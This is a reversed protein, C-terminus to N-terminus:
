CRFKKRIKSELQSLFLSSSALLIITSGSTLNFVFSLYIGLSVFFLSLLFSFFMVSLLSKFYTLAIFPPISLLAIVLILGVVQISMVVCFAMLILLLYYFVKVKIGRLAAFEMDFSIALFQRYFLLILTLFLMDMFFMYLLDRSNVSLISGFLFTMLDSKYGPTLDVFTIGIAMGFAWIAGILADAQNKDKFTLFALLFALIISFITAGLLPALGFFLALGIGGYAGHALSGAIFSMKNIVLLSGIIGCALSLLIGALFANQMFTYSLM